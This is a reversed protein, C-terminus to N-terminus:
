FAGDLDVGDHKARTLGDALYRDLPRKSMIVDISITDTRDYSLDREMAHVDKRERGSYMLVQLKRIEGSSLKSLADRLASTCPPVFRRRELRQELNAFYNVSGDNDAANERNRAKALEIIRLVIAEFSGSKRQGRLHRLATQYSEGTKLQRERVLKKLNSPM